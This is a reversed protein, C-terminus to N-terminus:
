GQQYSGPIPTPKQHFSPRIEFFDFMGVVDYGEDWASDNTVSLAVREFRIDNDLSAIYQWQDTKVAYFGSCAKNSPEIFTLSSQCLFVVGVQRITCGFYIVRSLWM